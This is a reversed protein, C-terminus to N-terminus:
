GGEKTPLVDQLKRFKSMLGDKAVKEMIRKACNQRQPQFDKDTKPKISKRESPSLYPVGEKKLIREYQRRSHVDYGQKFSHDDTFQWMLDKNTQPINWIRRAEIHCHYAKHEINMPQQLEFEKGCILCEYQYTM